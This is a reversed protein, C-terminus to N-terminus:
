ALLRDLAVAAALVGACLNRGLGDIRGLNLRAAGWETPLPRM